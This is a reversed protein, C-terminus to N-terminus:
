RGTKRLLADRDVIGVEVPVVKPVAAGSFFDHIKAITSEGIKRPYQIVDAKLQTGKTIADM